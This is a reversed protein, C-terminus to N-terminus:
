ARARFEGRGRDKRWDEFSEGLVDELIAIDDQVLAMVARRTEVDLTPRRAGERQLARRLPKEVTRWVPPPAYAGLAAGARVGKRLLANTTNAPAFAKVNDPPMAHARGPDVGLFESVRDLTRAPENVLERYRLVLVQERPFLTLLHQLQSGYRGLGLYHWFPAYGSTIRQPEALVAEHFDGIPEYGDSWLHTWNSYARDVPDRVVVVLRADPVDRSIRQQAELDYLYLPTSEGRLADPAAGKWLSEYRPREWVWERSSHADGPGRNDARTPPQGNCLYFKPEKISSMQLQPHTALAGHLATTGAKPAGILLFQPLPM